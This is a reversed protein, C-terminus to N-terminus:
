ETEESGISYFLSASNQNSYENAIWGADRVTSSIRIEDIDDDLWSDNPATTGLDQDAGFVLGGPTIDLETMTLSEPNENDAAGNIYLRMQNNVDDRVATYHRWNFDNVNAIGYNVRNGHAFLEIENNDEFWFLYENAEAHTDYSSAGSLVARRNSNNSAYWFSLTVDTEGDLVTHPLEMYDTTNEEFRQGLGLFGSKNTDAVFDDAHANNATADRYADTNGSGAVSEEMHYVALYENTWVNQAGYTDSAAYAPATSSGYYVYFVSTTATDLSPARFHLQGTEGTTDISVVERPVETLGDATTIRIDGGGSQVAGFFASPLDALDVYVPFNTVSGFLSTGSISLPLRTDYGVLFTSTTTPTSTSGGGGGGGSGAAALIVQTETTGTVSFSTQNDTEYGAASVDLVYDSASSMGTFFAQGYISTELTQDYGGNSLRVDAGPIAAGLTDVVTTRLSQASYPEMVLTLEETVNPSLTYPLPAYAEKINYGETTGDLTIDYADWEMDLLESEGSGDTTVTNTYKLVPAGGNDGINKSGAIDFTLGSIPTESEVHTLSWDFLEATESSSSSTLTVGLALRDYTSADISTIDVPGAIFGISNNALETDPLLTYVSTSGVGTVEYLRVRFATDATTTGNFDISQWSDLTGPETTSSYAIGTSEYSGSGGALIIGGGSVIADTATAIQADSSFTDSFVGTVPTSIARLTLNSLRDIAFNVTSVDGEVVAVHPPNPSTNTATASYTQDTSYGPNTVTIQYGGGAPAGPFNAIGNANTTVTVDTSTALTDNFVHVTAGVVPQVAADFVNILLTGGGATSEIGRPALDSILTTTRTQGRQDWTYQVKIVKSDETIGNGDAGAFGDEPRDIFQILVRENYQIGNLSTTSTQPISGAPIGLVTGVDNYPLSRIYEMREVALSRAGAEAKSNSIINIMLQLGSFLGTFVIAALASVIVVEVLSVGRRRSGASFLVAKRPQNVMSPQSM